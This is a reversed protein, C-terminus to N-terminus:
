FPRRGMLRRWLRKYWPLTEWLVLALPIDWMAREAPLLAERRLRAM